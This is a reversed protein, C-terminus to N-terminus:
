DHPLFRGSVGLTFALIGSLVLALGTALLLGNGNGVLVRVYDQRRATHMM